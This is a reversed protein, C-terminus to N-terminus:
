GPTMKEMRKVIRVGGVDPLNFTVVPGVLNANVPVFLYM